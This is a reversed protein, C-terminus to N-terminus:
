KEGTKTTRGQSVQKLIWKGFEILAQVALQIVVTELTGM